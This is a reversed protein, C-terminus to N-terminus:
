RGAFFRIVLEGNNALSMQVPEDGRWASGDDDDHAVLCALAVMRRERPQHMEHQKEAPQQGCVADRWGAHQCRGDHVAIVIDFNASVRVSLDNDQECMCLRNVGILSMRM